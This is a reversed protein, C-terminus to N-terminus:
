KTGGALMNALTTKHIVVGNGVGYFKKVTQRSLGTYRAVDTQNLLNKQPFAKNLEERIIESATM